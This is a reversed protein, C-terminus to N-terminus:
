QESNLNNTCITRIMVLMENVDGRLDAKGFNKFGFHEYFKIAPTNSQHVELYEGMVGGDDLEALLKAFLRTGIGQGHYDPDVAVIQIKATDKKAEYYDEFFEAVRAGMCAVIKGNLEAVFFVHRWSCAVKALANKRPAAHKGFCKQCIAAVEQADDSTM